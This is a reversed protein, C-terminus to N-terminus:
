LQGEDEEAFILETRQPQYRPSQLTKQLPKKFGQIKSVREQEKEFNGKDEDQELTMIMSEIEVTHALYIQEFPSGLLSLSMKKAKLIAIMISLALKPGEYLFMAKPHEYLRNLYKEIPPILGHKDDLSEIHGMIEQIVHSGKNVIHFMAEIPTVVKSLATQFKIGALFKLEASSYGDEGFHPLQTKNAFYKNNKWKKAAKDMFGEDYENFKMSLYISCIISQTVNIDECIFSNVMYYRKFLAVAYYIIKEFKFPYENQRRRRRMFEVFRKIYGTSFVAENSNEFEYQFKRYHEV